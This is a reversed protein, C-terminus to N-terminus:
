VSEVAIGHQEFVRVLQQRRDLVQSVRGSVRELRRWQRCMWEVDETDMENSNMGLFELQKLGKLARIYHNGVLDAATPRESEPFHYPRSVWPPRPPMSPPRHDVASRLDLHKLRTLQGLREFAPLFGGETKGQIQLQLHELERCIWPKSSKAMLEVSVHAAELKRLRPCQELVTLVHEPSLAPCQTMSLSELTAFHRSSLRSFSLPGIISRCFQPELCIKKHWMVLSKLPPVLELISAIAEDDDPFRTGILTLSELKPWTRNTLAELFQPFTSEDFNPPGTLHSLNPCALMLTMKAEPAMPRQEDIPYVFCLSKIGELMLTSLVSSPPIAHGCTLSEFRACARWFADAADPAVADFGVVLEKPNRWGSSITDWFTSKPRPRPRRIELSEITPNLGVFTALDIRPDDFWCRTNDIVLSRLRQFHVTHLEIAVTSAYVLRRIHHANKKFALLDIRKSKLVQLPNDKFTVRHWLFPGFSTNFAHSVHICALLTKINLFQGIHDRIEPLELARHM